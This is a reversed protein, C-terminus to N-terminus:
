EKVPVGVVEYVTFGDQSYVNKFYRTDSLAAEFPNFWEKGGCLVYNVGYGSLTDYLTLPDYIRMVDEMEALRDADHYQKMYTLAAYAINRGSLIPVRPFHDPNEYVVANAPTNDKIWEIAKVDSPSALSATPADMYFSFVMFTSPVMVIAIIGATIMKLANKSLLWKTLAYGAFLTVPLSLYTLFRYTNGTMPLTLVCLLALNVAAFTALLKTGDSGRNDYIGYAAFPVLPGLTVLLTVLVDRHSGIAIQSGANEPLILYQILVALGSLAMPISLLMLAQRDREKYVLYVGLLAITILAPFATILHYFVLSAMAIGTVAAALKSRSRVTTIFMYLCFILALLGFTQPQPLFFYLSTPDYKLIIIGPWQYVLSNFLDVDISSYQKLLIYAWSLGSSLVYLLSAGLAARDDSKFIAAALLYADLFILASVASVAVKFVELLPLGSILCAEGLMVHMFWDYAIDHGAYYPDQPLVQPMTIYRQAISLHFTQDLGHTYTYVLGGDQLHFTKLSVLLVILFIAASIALAATQSKEISLSKGKRYNYLGIAAAMLWLIVPTSRFPLPSTVLAAVPIILVSLTFPIAVIEALTFKEKFLSALSFGPIFLLLFFTAWGLPLISLLGVLPLLLWAERRM